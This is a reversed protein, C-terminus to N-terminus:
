INSIAVKNRSYQKILEALEKNSIPLDPMPILLTPTSTYYTIFNQINKSKAIFRSYNELVLGLSQRKTSYAYESVAIYPNKDTPLYQYISIEKIENWYIVDGLLSYSIGEYSLKFLPNLHAKLIVSNIYNNFIFIAIILFFLGTTILLIVPHFDILFFISIAFAIFLSIIRYLNNKYWIIPLRLYWEKKRYIEVEEKDNVIVKKVGEMKEFISM